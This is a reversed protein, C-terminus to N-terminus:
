RCTFIPAFFFDWLYYIYDGSGKAERRGRGRGRTTGIERSESLPSMPLAVVGEMGISMTSVWNSSAFVLNFAFSM